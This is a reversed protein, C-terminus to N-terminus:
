TPSLIALFRAEGRHSDFWSRLEDLPARLEPLAPPQEQAQAQTAPAPDKSGCAACLVVTASLMSARFM